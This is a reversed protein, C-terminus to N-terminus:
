FHFGKIMNIITPEVDEFHEVYQWIHNKIYQLKFTLAQTRTCIM